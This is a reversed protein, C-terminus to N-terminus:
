QPWRDSDQLGEDITVLQYNMAQWKQLIEEAESVDFYRHTHSLVIVGGIADCDKQYINFDRFVYNMSQDTVGGSEATWMVHRMGYRAAFTRVHLDNSGYPARFYKVEYDPIIQNKIDLWLKFQNNLHIDDMATMEDHTYTHCGLIHGQAIIQPLLDRSANLGQGTMFFTCKANYKRYVDLLKQVNEPPWGEDYTMMTIMQDKKGFYISHDALFKIKEPTLIEPTATPTLTATRTETQTFTPTATDTPSPTFTETPTITPTATNTPNPDIGLSRCAALAWAGFAGTACLKIFDRRSLENGFSEKLAM